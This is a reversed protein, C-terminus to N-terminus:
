ARVETVGRKECSTEIPCKACRPVRRCAEKALRVFQAHYDNFLAADRPLNRHFLSQVADYSEGGRLLGVRELVRRTYADVVFFAHGAAYLAIADATEPGIGHVALLRERLRIPEEGAMRAVRGGYERGLLDLFARVRRAKMRFTGSPRLMPALRSVPLRDLARFSLLRRRRLGRLTREVNTWATNQTLIAGLCVEFATRGPWWRAPGYARRLTRYIRVLRAGVFARYGSFQCGPAGDRM